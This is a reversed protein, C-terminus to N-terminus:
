LLRTLLSPICKQTTTRTTTTTNQDKNVNLINQAPAKTSIYKYFTFQSFGGLLTPLTAWSFEITAQTLRLARKKGEREWRNEFGNVAGREEEETETERQRERASM